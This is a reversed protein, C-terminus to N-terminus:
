LRARLTLGAMLPDGVSGAIVGGPVANGVLTTFYHLDLANHVWASLDWSSDEFKVGAHFNLLGYSPIISFYSDTTDSYTKTQYTADAGIYGLLPKQIFDIIQGLHQTYEVGAAAAFRPTLSLPQGTLNCSSLYNLEFPCASNTFSSYFTDDYTFSAYTNLGDIPQYRIDAEVGRSVAGQANALYSTTTSGLTTTTTTIYNHDYMVFVDVNALLRHDLWQSKVGVEADDLIEPKVTNSIGVPLNAPNPGGDRGGQAFTVYGHVDPAFKYDASLLGSFFGDQTHINVNAPAQILSTIMALGAAQQKASFGALDQASAQYNRWVSTKDNWSYRAGATIDLEPTAHWIGNLYPAVEDISPNDFTRVGLYNLAANNLAASANTGYWSGTAPGYFTGGWGYEQDYLYFLGTNAEIPGKPTSIRLDETFSKDHNPGASTLALIPAITGSGNMFTAQGSDNGVFSSVSSLHFGSFDYNVISAAEYNSVHTDRTGIVSSTYCVLAATCPQVYNLKAARAYYNNPVAAGNFYNTVVGNFLQNPGTGNAASWTFILRVSLDNSPTYLIQAKAGKDHWDNSDQGGYYNGIYGNRDTSFAAIRFAFQDSDAIPGTASGKFQVFNYNGYSAEVAEHEVFSPLATTINVVGGTSDQGGFTGHPGKLVEIGVLDPIDVLTTEMRPQYVGDINIPVGSFIAEPQSTSAQGFGRINVASTHIFQSKFQLSPELKAAEGVNTIDLNQIQQETIVTAAQTTDQYKTAQVQSFAAVDSSDIKTADVPASVVVDEVHGEQAAPEPQATQALAATSVSLSLCLPLSVRRALSTKTLKM